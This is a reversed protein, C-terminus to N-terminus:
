LVAMPIFPKSIRVFNLQLGDGLGDFCKRLTNDQLTAFIRRFCYINGFYIAPIQLKQLVVVATLIIHRKKINVKAIAYLYYVEYSKLQAHYGQFVNLLEGGNLARAVRIFTVLACCALSWSRVEFRTVSQRKINRLTQQTKRRNYTYIHARLASLSRNRM